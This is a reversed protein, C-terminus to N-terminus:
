GIETSSVPRPEVREAKGNHLNIVVDAERVLAPRHTIAVITIRGKLKVLARTVIEETEADLASTAEDLVLLRPHGLLARALAIRQREGGSLRSGHDGVLTDLGNPLRRVFDAAAAELAAYIEEDATQPKIWCLNERITSNFLLPDQGLYGIGRRWVSAPLADLPYGDIRVTGSTPKRLGLVCDLLTTKGSGTQGMLAVFAGAPIEIDVSDLVTRSGIQVSVNDVAIAAAQDSPWGAPPIVPAVQQTLEADRLLGLANRFAPMHFDVIQLSQRLGTIRPFLRVFIAIIVLIAGIDVALFRPGAYLLAVVLLGGSYEFIARVLQADFANGFSVAEMRNVTIALREFARDETATAKIFKAGGVIEGTDVMLDANLATQEAGFAMARLAWWRTLGFLLVGFFLLLGVVMPAIFLSIVIQVFVFLLAAAILNLQSFVLGIRGPENAIATVLDGARRSVFFDYDAALFTSFMRRQWSAVYFAQLRTALYSQALFAVASGAILLVILGAISQPTAAFGVAELLGSFIKSIRDTPGSTAEGFSSLLPLLSAVTAGELLANAFTLLALLPLKWRLTTWADKVFAYSIANM